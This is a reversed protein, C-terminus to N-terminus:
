SAAHGDNLKRVDTALDQARRLVVEGLHLSGPALYRPAACGALGKVVESTELAGEGHRRVREVEHVILERRRERELAQARECQLVEAALTAAVVDGDAVPRRRRQHGRDPRCDRRPLRDNADGRAVGM